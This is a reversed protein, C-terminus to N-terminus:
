GELIVQDLWWQVEAGAFHLFYTEQGVQVSYHLSYIDGQRDIWRANVRDVEYTRGNWRFRLPEATGGSFDALVGVPEGIREIRM